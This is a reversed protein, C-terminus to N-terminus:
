REKRQWKAKMDALTPYGGLSDPEPVEPPLIEQICVEDILHERKLDALHAKKQDNTLNAGIGQTMVLVLAKDTMNIWYARRVLKNLAQTLTPSASRIGGSTERAWTAV